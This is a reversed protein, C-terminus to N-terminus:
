RSGPDDRYVPSFTRTTHETVSPMQELRQPLQQPPAPMQVPARFQPQPQQSERNLTLMKSWFRILLATSGFLTALSFIVMWAIAAPHLQIRALDAAGGFIIGLGITITLGLVITPLTLKVPAAPTAPYIVGTSTLNAGCRSCYKLEFSIDSGCSPCYM